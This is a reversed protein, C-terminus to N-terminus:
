MTDMSELNAFVHPAAASEGRGGVGIRLDTITMAATTGAGGEALGGRRIENVGYPANLFAFGRLHGHTQSSLELYHACMAGTAKWQTLYADMREVYRQRMKANRTFHLMGAVYENRALLTEMSSQMLAWFMQAEQLIQDVEQLKNAAELLNNHVERQSLQGAQPEAGGGAASAAASASAASEVASRPSGASASGGVSSGLASGIQLM